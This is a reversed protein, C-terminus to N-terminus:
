VNERKFAKLYYITLLTKRAYFTSTNEEFAIQAIQSFKLNYDYFSSDLTYLNNYDANIVATFFELSM